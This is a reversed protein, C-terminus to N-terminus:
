HLSISSFLLLHFVLSRKLFILSVLSVNLAFIPEIFSLFPIGGLTVLESYRDLVSDYMAGFTTQMNGIRAVQGDFMDLLSSLILVVGAIWVLDYDIAGSQTLAAYVFIVAAALNGLFGMTTVVNPTIGVKIMGHVLPNIVKYIGLQLADRMKNFMSKNEM